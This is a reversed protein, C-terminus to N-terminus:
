PLFVKFYIIRTGRALHWCSNPEFRHLVSYFYVSWPPKYLCSERLQTQLPSKKNKVEM